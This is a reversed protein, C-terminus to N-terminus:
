GKISLKTCQYFYNTLSVLVQDTQSTIEKLTSM